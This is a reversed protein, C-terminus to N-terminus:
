IDYIVEERRQDTYILHTWGEITVPMGFKKKKGLIHFNWATLQGQQVTKKNNGGRTFNKYEREWKYAFTHLLLVQQFSITTPM